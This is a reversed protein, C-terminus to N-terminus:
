IDYHIGGSEFDNLEEIDIVYENEQLRLRGTGIVKGLWLLEVPHETSEQSALIDGPKLQLLTSYSVDTQCIRIRLTSRYGQRDVSATKM